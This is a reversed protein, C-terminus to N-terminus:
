VTIPALAALSASLSRKTDPAYLDWKFNKRWHTISPIRAILLGPNRFVNATFALPPPTGDPLTLNADECCWKGFQLVKPLVASDAKYFSHDWMVQSLVHEQIHRYLAPADETSSQDMITRFDSATFHNSAM